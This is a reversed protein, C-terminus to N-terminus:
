KRQTTPDAALALTEQRSYGFENITFVVQKPQIQAVRMRGLQQGVKVRYQDKTSLDRLIAVSNCGTPDYLVTVLRLDSLMPRLDGSKLLSLFPDRRGAGPYAYVERSFTLESAAGRQTVSTSGARPQSDARTAAPTSAPSATTAAPKSTTAAKAPAKPTAPATAGRTASQAGTTAAKPKSAPRAERKPTAAVSDTAASAESATAATRRAANTAARGAVSAAKGLLQAHARAPLAAGFAAAAALAILITRTTRM